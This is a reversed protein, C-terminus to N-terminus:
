LQKEITKLHEIYEAHTAPLLQTDNYVIGRKFHANFSSCVGSNSVVGVTSWYLSKLVVGNKVLKCYLPMDKLKREEHWEMSEFLHPHDAFDDYYYISSGNDPIHFARKIDYASTLEITEGVEFPSRPYTRICKFRPKLLQEVTLPHPHRLEDM